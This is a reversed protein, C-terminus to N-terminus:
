KHFWPIFKHANQEFIPIQAFREHMFNIYLKAQAMQDHM